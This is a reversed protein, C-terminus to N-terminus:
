AGVEAAGQPLYCQLLTPPPHHTAVPSGCVVHDSCQAYQGCHQSRTCLAGQVLLPATERGECGELRVHFIPMLWVMFLDWAHGGGSTSLTPSLGLMHYRLPM